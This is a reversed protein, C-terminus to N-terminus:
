TTARSAGLPRLLRRAGGDGGPARPLEGGGGLDRASQRDARAAEGLRAGGAQGARAAKLGEAASPKNALADIIEAMSAGPRAAGTAALADGLPYISDGDVLDRM